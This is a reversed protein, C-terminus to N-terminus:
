DTKRKKHQTELVKVISKLDKSKGSTKPLTELVEFFLQEDKSLAVSNVMFPVEISRHVPSVAGPEGSIVHTFTYLKLECNFRPKQGDKQKEAEWETQLKRMQSSTLRKVAWFPHMTESDDKSWQWEPNADKIVENGGAMKPSRFEMPLYYTASHKIVPTQKAPASKAKPTNTEALTAHLKVSVQISNPDKATDLLRMNKPVCPPLKITEVTVDSTAIVRYLSLSGKQLIDVSQKDVPYNAHLNHLMGLAAAKDAQDLNMDRHEDLWQRWPLIHWPMKADSSPMEFVNQETLAHGTAEDYAIVKMTYKAPPQGHKEGSKGVHSSKPDEHKARTFDIWPKMPSKRDAPNPYLEQAFKLCRNLMANEMDAMASVKRSKVEYFEAFTNAVAVDLKALLRIKDTPRMTNKDIKEKFVPVAEWHFFHLMEECKSLSQYPVTTWFNEPSPCIGSVPDKRYARKLVAIKSWPTSHSMKNVIGFASFKLQRLTSDVFVQAFDFFDDVYANRGVGMQVLFDFVAPLDPDFGAVALEQKVKDRVVLFNVEQDKLPGMQLIIEGTLVKMATIETTRLAMESFRNLANSIIQAAGPEEDDMEWCLIECPIGRLLVEHVERGNIHKKATEACLRGSADCAIFDPDIKKMDWAAKHMFNRLILMMHNHGLMKYQCSGFPDAFSNMLWPDNKCKRQNYVLASEFKNKNKLLQLKEIPVEEVAVANHSVDTAVFGARIVDRILTRCREGSPYHGGRNLPHVGMQQIPVFYNAEGLSCKKYKVKLAMAKTLEGADDNKGAAAM